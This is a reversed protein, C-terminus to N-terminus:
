RGELKAERLIAEGPIEWLGCSVDVGMEGLVSMQPETFYQSGRM